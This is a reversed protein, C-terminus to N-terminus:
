VCCVILIMRMNHSEYILFVTDATSSLTVIFFHFIARDISPHSANLHSENCQLHRNYKHCLAKKFINLSMFM